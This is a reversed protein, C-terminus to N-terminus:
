DCYPDGFDLAVTHGDYTAFNAPRNDWARDFEECLAEVRARVIEADPPLDEGITAEAMLLVDLSEGCSCATDDPAAIDKRPGHCAYFDRTVAQPLDVDQQYDHVPVSLEREAALRQIENEDGDIRGVKAIVGGGVRFVVSYGGMGVIQRKRWKIQSIILPPIM